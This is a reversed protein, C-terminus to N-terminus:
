FLGLAFSDSAREASSLVYGPRVGRRTPRDSYLCRASPESVCSVVLLRVLSLFDPATVKISPGV